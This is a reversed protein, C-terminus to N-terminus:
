EELQDKFNDLLEQADSFKDDGFEDKLRDLLADKDSILEKWKNEKLVQIQALHTVAESMRRIAALEDEMIQVMEDEKDLEEKTCVGMLLLIKNMAATQKMMNISSIAKEEMKAAAITLKICWETNNLEKNM